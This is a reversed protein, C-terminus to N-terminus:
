HRERHQGSTDCLNPVSQTRGISGLDPPLRLGERRRGEEENLWDFLRKNTDAEGVDIYLEVRITGNGAFVASAPIGSTGISFAYWNQPQAVRAGTFKHKERLEDIM